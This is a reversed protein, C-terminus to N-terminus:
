AISNFHKEDLLRNFLGEYQKIIRGSEFKNKVSFMVHERNISKLRKVDNLLIVFEIFDNVLFGNVNHEVIDKTGGIANFAIVPTGAVCSELLANPFGEVYSGQIFYDNNILEDFVHSSHPIMTVNDKLRLRLITEKITKELFGSGIITYHFEYNKIKSLGDLIRLHGKENSLRGVTIFNIKSEISKMKIQTNTYTIPNHIVVLKSHKLGFVNILDRRMDESQCVITSLQPYFLKVIIHNFRSYKESYDKMKSLVSAERGIFLTKQFIFSFIGMLINVHGISSLVIDPKNKRIFSFLPLISLLLRHKDFYHVSLPGVDFVSDKKSGIVVLTVLYQNVDLHNAVFTVVREAGGARLSPLIFLIKRKSRM